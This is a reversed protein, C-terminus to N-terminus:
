SNPLWCREARYALREMAECRWRGGWDGWSRRRVRSKCDMVGGRRCREAEHRRGDTREGSGARGSTGVHEARRQERGGGDAKRGGRTIGRGRAGRESADHREAADKRALVGERVAPPARADRKTVGIALAHMMTAMGSKCCCLDRRMRVRIGCGMELWYVNVGPQQSNHALLSNGQVVLAWCHVVFALLAGLLVRVRRRCMLAFM